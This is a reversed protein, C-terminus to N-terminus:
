LGRDDEEGPEEDLREFVAWRETWARGPAPHAVPRDLVLRFAPGLAEQLDAVTTRWPPGGEELPRDVPFVLAYLRGRVALLRRAMEGYRPREELPLSCFFTHEWIAEFPPRALFELADGAVFHGGLVELRPGVLPRLAAVLDVATVIWGARALALADHGRGCGPVYVRM